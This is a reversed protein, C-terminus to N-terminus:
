SSSGRVGYICFQLAVCQAMVNRLAYVYFVMLHDKTSLILVSSRPFLLRYLIQICFCFMLLFMSLQLHEHM